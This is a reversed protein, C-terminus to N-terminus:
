FRKNEIVNIKLGLPEMIKLLTDIKPNMMLSEIRAITSQPFTCLKALDRQSYGLKRRQTILVSIIEAQNEIENILEPDQTRVYEKYENWNKM